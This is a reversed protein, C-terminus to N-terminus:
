RGYYAGEILVTQGEQLQIVSGDQKQLSGNGYVRTGDSMGMMQASGLTILTGDKQIVVRGNKLTVTDKAQISSGDLRFLQGDLARTRGGPLNGGSGDPNISMGNPFNMTSTLQSAQGDRVIYTRGEKIGVHDVVPQVSGDANVLWGDRRLVQREQLNRDNGKGVKFTGNTSVMVKDPFTLNATLLDLKDGHIAYIQKDKFTVADADGGAFAQFLSILFLGSFVVSFLRNM